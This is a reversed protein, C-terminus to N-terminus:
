IGDKKNRWEKYIKIEKSNPSRWCPSGQVSDKVLALAGTQPDFLGKVNKDHLAAVIMYMVSQKYEM